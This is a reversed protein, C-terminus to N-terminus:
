GGLQIIRYRDLALPRAGSPGYKTVSGASEELVQKEGRGGCGSM